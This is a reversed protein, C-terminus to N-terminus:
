VKASTVDNNLFTMIVSLATEMLQTFDVTPIIKVKNRIAIEGHIPNLNFSLTISIEGTTT